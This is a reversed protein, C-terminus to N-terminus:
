NKADVRADMGILVIYLELYLNDLGPNNFIDTGNKIETAKGDETITLNEVDVVMYEFMKETDYAFTARKIEKGENDKVAPIYERVDATEGVTMFKIKIKVPKEAKRNGDLKPIYMETRKININM